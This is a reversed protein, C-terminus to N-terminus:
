AGAAMALAETGEGRPARRPVDQGAEEIARRTDTAMLIAAGAAFLLILSLLAQRYSGTVSVVAGFLFPGIWSTGSNAIEYLGFFAAERGPPIMRSFLSRSLAQSGGLVLAIVASIGWAQAQTQLLGYSYVIAGCWVALSLVLARKAGVLAALWGFAISGAFGVFQIMLMLGLLFGKDEPRGRRVFLEQALFVSAMAIVTQIGDNFLLYAFLFRRTHRLRRLERVTSRLDAVGLALSAALPSPPSAAARSRLRRLTVAAFGAWWVGASLLCLRIVLDTPLGRRRGLSVFALAAALHVTGGLYGLAYGRSSVLDRREPSAIDPLFANYLVTTAGLSLNAIVFVLGGWRFDLPGGVFFLLCTAIAGSAGTLALLRKKLRSRDAVAGLVPLLFLQLLVSLSVCYPFFAKATVGALLPATFVPGNEGVARQALETLYPGAMVSAVTTVFGHCAWAYMMWGFVERRDDVAAGAAPAPTVAALPTAM